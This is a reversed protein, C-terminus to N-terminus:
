CHWTDIWMDLMQSWALSGVVEFTKRSIIVYMEVNPTPQLVYDEDFCVSLRPPKNPNM